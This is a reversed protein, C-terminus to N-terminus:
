SSILQYLDPYDGFLEEGGVSQAKKLYSIGKERNGLEIWSRGLTLLVFPNNCGNHTKFAQEFYCKAEEFEDLKFFAEGINSAILETIDNEEKPETILDWAKNYLDIADIFCAKNFYSEAQKCIKQINNIENSNM